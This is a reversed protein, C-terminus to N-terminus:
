QITVYTLSAALEPLSIRPPLRHSYLPLTQHFNYRLQQGKRSTDVPGPNVHIVKHYDYQYPQYKAISEDAGPRAQCCWIAYPQRVTLIM